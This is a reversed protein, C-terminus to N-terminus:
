NLALKEPEDYETFSNEMSRLVRVPINLLEEIAKLACQAWAEDSHAQSEDEGYTVYIARRKHKKHKTNTKYAYRTWKGHKLSPLSLFPIVKFL